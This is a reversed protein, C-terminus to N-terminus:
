TTCVYELIKEVEDSEVGHLVLDGQRIDVLEKLLDIRWENEKTVKNYDIDINKLDDINKRGSLLMIKRLNTGTTTRVDNKAIELLQKPAFKSSNQIREIFSLYRKILVRTMHPTETLPEMFYRHTALIYNMFSVTVYM